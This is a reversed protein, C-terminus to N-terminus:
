GRAYQDGYDRLPAYFEKVKEFMRRIPPYDLTLNRDWQNPQVMGGLWLKDDGRPLIFVFSQGEKQSEDIDEILSICMSHNLKADFKRREEGLVISVEETKHEQLLLGKCNDFLQQTVLTESAM